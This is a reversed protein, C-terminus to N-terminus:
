QITDNILKKWKNLIIKNSMISKMDNKIKQKSYERKILCYEIGKALDKSDMNRAIYGNKNNILDKSIGTDFAVVPTGLSLAENIMMPGNDEVSSCVFLDSILYQKILEEQNLYGIFNTNLNKPFACKDKGAIMILINSFINEGVNKKLEEIAKIFYKVGKRKDTLNQTGFFIIKKKKKKHKIIEFNVDFNIPYYILSTQLSKFLSSKQVLQKAYSSSVNVKGNILELYKKKEIYNIHSRNKHQKVKIAPCDQCSKTYGVCDWNYHCGGTLFSSDLLNFIM